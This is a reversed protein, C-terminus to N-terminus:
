LSHGGESESSQLGQIKARRAKLSCNTPCFQCVGPFSKSNTQYGQSHFLGEHDQVLARSVAPGPRPPLCADGPITIAVASATAASAVPRQTM